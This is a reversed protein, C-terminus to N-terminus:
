EYKAILNSKDGITLVTTWVDYFVHPEEFYRLGVYTKSNNQHYFTHQGGTKTTKSEKIWSSGLCSEIIRNGEDFDKKASEQGNDSEWSCVYSHLGTSWQWVQCNEAMPFVKDAFWANQYRGRVLTKKFKDFNNPHEAILAKLRKCSEEESLPKKTVTELKSCSSQLAMIFVVLTLFILKSWLKHYKNNMVIGHLVM